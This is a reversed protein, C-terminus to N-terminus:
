RAVRRAARAITVAGVNSSRSLIQSVTMTETGRQEADHISATPSRSRTRCRSRRTAAHRARRLARRRGDRAQVDLRARVHRHRRPQAAARRRRPEVHERRLGPAQAMALVAGTRPDLVIATAAKAGWHAVTQRLVQEANAQITHDLTLFLDRARRARRTASIVDIARGFPDRVITQEGPTGALESTSSCSSGPSGRTTSARTASCRRARRHGASLRAAGGPLLRRRRLGQKVLQARGEPRGQAAVYVFSTAETSCSRTSRRERRRRPGSRGRAAVARPNRSRSRTPTSRRRRSASRSSSARATSSRGAAPPSSSTAERHQAQAMQRSRRPAAGGALWAARALLAAFVVLSSARAAPPHPSNLRRGRAGVEEGLDVYSTTPRSPAPRARAARRRRRSGRRRLASSLQSALAANERACSRASSRELEDLRMNLRLVAVNVRRRRRASRASSSGSSAAARAAQASRARVRVRVRAGGPAAASPPAAVPRRALAVREGYRREASACGRAVRRAPQARGRGASPRIPRRAIARLEPETGCVCVPFDPPCTCGREQERLFQKVIRDELSHFSIVALRGGPRLMELAAPLARELAGLEDNVAIRLAQFVRKAPHGDGFRAPAPIAAKITEVLEGTREFPQEKRRRVIARAIQRAYREEGYRPLHRSSASTARTSSDRARDAGADPGHAHRAARRGRVLLRARAPRAADVLRRPRAPDRRRARREDALQELM